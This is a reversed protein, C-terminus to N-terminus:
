ARRRNLPAKRIHIIPCEYSSPRPEGDSPVLVAVLDGPSGCIRADVLAHTPRGVFTGAPIEHEVGARDVARQADVEILFRDNAPSDRDAILIEVITGVARAKPFTFAGLTKTRSM